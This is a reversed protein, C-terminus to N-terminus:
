YYYYIQNLIYLKILSKGTNSFIIHLYSPPPQDAAIMHLHGHGHNVEVEPIVALDDVLATAKQDHDQGHNRDRGQSQDRRGPDVEVVVKIMM